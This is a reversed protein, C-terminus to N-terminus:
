PKPAPAADLWAPRHRFAEDNEAETVESFRGNDQRIYLSKWAQEALRRDRDQDMFGRLIKEGPEGLKLLANGIPRYGWDADARACGDGLKAYLERLAVWMRERLPEVDPEKREAILGLSTAARDSVVPDEHRTATILAEVAEPCRRVAGLGQAAAFRVYRDADGLAAAYHPVLDARPMFTLARMAVQRVVPNAHERAVTKLEELPTPRMRSLTVVVVENLPHNGHRDVCELLRAASQPGSIDRLEQAAMSRVCGETDALGKELLAVAAPDKTKGLALLSARRVLPNRHEASPAIDQVTAKAKERAVRWLAALRGMDDPSDLAEKMGEPLGFRELYQGEDHLASVVEAGQDRFTTWGKDSPSSTLVGVRSETNRVMWLCNNAARKQMEPHCYGYVVFRDMLGEKAWTELDFYVHGGTLMLEPVNWPQPFHPQQPNIFIGLRRGGAPLSAKLERLYTTVYEGRLAYWDFRSATRTFPGAAMDLGTRRKFETMITPAYGFEDQFRTSYNEAYTMFLLGDYGWREMLRRHLDVLASRAEPYALEIPGGQRLIVRRDVPVWEPHAARLRSEAAYPFDGSCPTDAASGWDFLASVGWIEMGHRRAAEVALRDPDVDAYLQRAWRWFGAYRCNEEQIVVTELWAAEQLGRWYVRRIGLRGLFEFSAAISSASDIPLSSALWHNDGTSIYCGPPLEAPSAAAPILPLFAALVFRPFIPAVTALSLRSKASMM